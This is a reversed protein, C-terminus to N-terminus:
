HQTGTQTLPRFKRTSIDLKQGGLTETARSWFTAIQWGFQVCSPRRFLAAEECIDFVPRICICGVGEGHSGGDTSTGQTLLYSNGSDLGNCTQYLRCRLCVRWLDACFDVHAGKHVLHLTSKSLRFCDYVNLRLLAQKFPTQGCPPCGAHPPPLLPAQWQNVSALGYLSSLIKIM